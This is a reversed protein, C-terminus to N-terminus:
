TLKQKLKLGTKAIKMLLPKHIIEFRGFNVLEGGYRLKFQRVGYPINPKGAGGFDFIEYNNKIGWRMLNWPLVDNPRFELFEDEAGAYWDYVLEKYCLAFRVAVLNTNVFFGIALLNEKHYKKANRFFEIKHLPLKIKQYVSEIIFYSKNLVDENSIDIEKIIVENNKLAINIGRKRDRKIEKWLQDEGKTLDFLIDLHDELNIKNEYFITKLEGWDWMNRFQSFIAKNKIRKVYEILMVNLVEKDNNLILPGGFIISRSTFTGLINNYLKIIVSVQIGLIKGNKNSIEIVLPEYNKTQQYIEYFNPTQFINGNPHNKVFDDWEKKNIKDFQSKCIYNIM